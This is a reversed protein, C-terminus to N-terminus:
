DPPMLFLLYKGGKDKSEGRLFKARIPWTGLKLLGILTAQINLAGTTCKVDDGSGLYRASIICFCPAGTEYDSATVYLDTIEFPESKAGPSDPVLKQVGLIGDQQWVDMENDATITLMALMMSIYDPNPDKYPVGYVISQAWGELNIIASFAEPLKAGTTLEKRPIAPLNGTM